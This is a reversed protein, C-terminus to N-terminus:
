ESRPADGGLLSPKVIDNGREARLEGRLNPVERERGEGRGGGGDGRGGESARESVCVCVPSVVREFAYHVLHM